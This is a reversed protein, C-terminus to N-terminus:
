NVSTSAFYGTVGLVACSFFVYCLSILAATGMGMIPGFGHTVFSYFGGAATVTRSMEIYGVAFITLVITAVLFSAPAAFGGGLVAVPVNFLMAAIPAAGTVICFLVGPLGLANQALRGSHEGDHRVASPGGAIPNAEPLIHDTM